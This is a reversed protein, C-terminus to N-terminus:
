GNVVYDDDPAVHRSHRHVLKAIQTGIVVVMVVAVAVVAVKIARRKSIRVGWVSGKNELGLKQERGAESSTGDDKTKNEKDKASPQIVKKPIVISLIGNAQSFKAQIEHTNCDKPLNVKKRFRTRKSAELELPREGYIELIGRNNAQVKLQEKKFGKLVIDLTDKAEESHWKCLPEFDEYLRNGAAAMASLYSSLYPFISYSHM